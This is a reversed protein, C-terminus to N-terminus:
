RIQGRKNLVHLENCIERERPHTESILPMEMRLECYEALLEAQKKKIKLFPSITKILKHVVNLNHTEFRYNPKRRFSFSSSNKYVSGGVLQEAYELVQRNNNSIEVRPTGHRRGNKWYLNFCGEGDILGAMYASEPESLEGKMLPTMLTKYYHIVGTRRTLGLKFAKAIITARTRRPILHQLEDWKAGAYYERLLQVEDETWSNVFQNASGRGTIEVEKL